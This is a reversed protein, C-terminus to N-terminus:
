TPEGQSDPEPTAQHGAQPTPQDARDAFRSNARDAEASHEGVAGFLLSKVVVPVVHAPAVPRGVDVYDLDALDLHDLCLVAGREVGLETTMIRGLSSAVDTDVAVVLRRVGTAAQASGFGSVLGAAVARLRAYTPDGRWRLSVALTGPLEQSSFRQDISTALASAVAEPDVDEDGLDLPPRVVPVHHLPLAAADVAITSGSVQTSFQSAGIVTARIRQEGGRLRGGLGAAGLRALLARALRPGLDGCDRLDECDDLDQLGDLNDREAVEHDGTVSPAPSGLYEAVGGSAVIEFPRDPVPFRDTLLM